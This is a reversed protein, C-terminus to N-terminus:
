SLADHPGTGELKKSERLGRKKEENKKKKKKTKKKKTKKKTQTKNKTKKKKKNKKKKTQVQSTRFESLPRSDREKKKAISGGETQVRRDKAQGAWATNMRAKSVGKVGERTAAM